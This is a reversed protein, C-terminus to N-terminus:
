FLIIITIIIIIISTIIIGTIRDKCITLRGRIRVRELESLRLRNRLETVSLAVLDTQYNANENTNSNINSNTATNIISPNKDITEELGELRARLEKIM